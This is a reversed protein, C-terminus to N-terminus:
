SSPTPTLPRSPFRAFAQAFPRGCREALVSSVTADETGAFVILNGCLFYRVDYVWDVPGCDASSPVNSAVNEAASDTDFAYLHIRGSTSLSYSKSPSSSLCQEPKSVVIDSTTVAQEELQRLIGSAIEQQSKLPLDNSGCALATLLLLLSMLAGIGFTKRVQLLDPM